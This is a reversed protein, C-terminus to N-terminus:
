HSYKELMQEYGFKRENDILYTKYKKVMALREKEELVGGVM